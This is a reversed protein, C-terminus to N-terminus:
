SAICRREDNLFIRSEIYTHKIIWEIEKSCPMIPTRFVITHLHSRGINYFVMDDVNRMSIDIDGWGQFTVQLSVPAKIDKFIFQVRKIKPKDLYITLTFQELIIQMDSDVQEM